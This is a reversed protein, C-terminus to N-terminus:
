HAEYVAKALRDLGELLRLTPRVLSEDRLVRIRKSKVAKLSPFRNWEAVM